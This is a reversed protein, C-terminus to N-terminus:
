PVSCPLSPIAAVETRGTTAVTRLMTGTVESPPGLSPTRDSAFTASAVVQGSRNLASVRFGVQEGQHALIAFGEVPAMADVFGDSFRTEVRTVASGVRVPVVMFPRPSVQVGFLGQLSIYMGDPSAIHCVPIGEFLRAKTGFNSAGVPSLYGNVQGGCVLVGDPSRRAFLVKLPEGGAACTTSDSPQSSVTVVGGRGVSSLSLTIGLAAATVVFTCLLVVWRRSPRSWGNSLRRIGNRRPHGGALIKDATVPPVDSLYQETFHRLQTELDLM